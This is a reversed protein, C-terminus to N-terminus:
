PITDRPRWHSLYSVQEVLDNTGMKGRSVFVLRVQLYPASQAGHERGVLRFIEALSHPTSALTLREALSVMYLGDNWRPNWFLRVFMTWISLTSPRPRFDCWQAASVDPGQVGAWQVRPSAEITEFFRWSPILAPLLLTLFHVM